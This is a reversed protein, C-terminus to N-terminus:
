FINTPMKLPVKPIVSCIVQNECAFNQIPELDLGKLLSIVHIRTSRRKVQFDKASVFFYTHKQMSMGLSFYYWPVIEFTVFSCKHVKHCCELAARMLKVNGVCEFSYDVGGDTLEVLVQFFVVYSYPIFRIYNNYWLVTHVKCM